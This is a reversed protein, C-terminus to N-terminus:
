FFDFAWIQGQSASKQLTFAIGKGYFVIKLRIHLFRVISRNLDFDRISNV